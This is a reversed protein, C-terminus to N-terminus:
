HRFSHFLAVDIAATKGTGTPLDLLKPWIGSEVVQKALRMQWPFPEFHHVAEFFARFDDAGLATM